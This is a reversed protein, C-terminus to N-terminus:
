FYAGARLNTIRLTDGAQVSGSTLRLGLYGQGAHAAANLAAGSLRLPVAEGSQVTASGILSGGGADPCLAYGLLSPCNPPTASIYFELTKAGSSGTLTLTGTVLVRDVSGPVPQSFANVTSYVTQSSASLPLPAQITQDPLAQSGLPVTGCAALLAPLLLALPRHMAELTVRGAQRSPGPKM